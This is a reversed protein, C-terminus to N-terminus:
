ATLLKSVTLFSMTQAIGAEAILEGLTRYKLSPRELSTVLRSDYSGMSCKFDFAMCSFSRTKM